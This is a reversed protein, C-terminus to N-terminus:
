RGKEMCGRGYMKNGYARVYKKKGFKKWVKKGYRKLVRGYMRKGYVTKYLYKRKGYISRGNEKWIYKKKGYEKWVGEEMSETEM